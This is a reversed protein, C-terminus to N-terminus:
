FIIKNTVLEGNQLTTKVILAQHSSSFDTTLFENSDVKNNQYIQRGLLDFIVVKNITESLSNIKIQKNKVSVVVKNKQTTVTDTGLTKGNTYRLVFRDNFTGAVTSFTYNGANLETITNTLKDEIFIKQNTMSGDVQDISITFPSEITSRFGLPVEDNESFPLARGQITLNKGQNVSYFDIFEQGDFSEGDFANDIDNTAGDIYGVLTQKFAGKANTLNLWIRNKEIQATKGKTNKIKFFQSNDLIAGGSSLRMANNFAVSGGTAKSTTFFAQGAAIEGTPIIGGSVAVGGTGNYSAYDDSTYAFAGSGATGNTINSALQIATNHTWFYITGEIVTSNASLFKNADIASPYPNGLLNSNGTPGIVISKNGNHPTGTFTAQYFSPPPPPTPSGIQQGRIIYGKGVTMITSASESKWSEPTAFDNFSYFMGSTYAPSIALNQNAVPSSWYTYDSIRVSSTNRKYIINGSNIAADNIQVLSATNEFTLSGATIKLENTLTLTDNANFTVAGSTIMCSCATVNGTSSYNAAFVIKQNVTPIGQSWAGTWTNTVLSNIVVNGTASSTCTGNSASFQYTGETLGSITMSTGTIPFNTVVTGTQYITGSAPLGSLVVSGTPTSCNPQTITGVTPTAIGVTVTIPYSVTSTCSPWDTKLTLTANYVGADAGWPVNVSFTNPASGLGVYSLDSFGATNATSDFDVVCAAPSGTTASYAFSATTTNQCVSSNSNILTITLEPNVTVSFASSNVTACSGSGVVARYEWTGAVSPNESYVTTTNAITTWTVSPLLRKEWRVVNGVYGGGLTMNGTSSNLCIPTNGSYVGGGVPTPSVVITQISSYASTCSGSQVVARYEWTGAAYPIESFTTASGGAWNWGGGNLQKEWNVITGTYGSLTLTGTSSGQCIPTSGGSVTGGVSAPNVSSINILSSVSCGLEDAYNLTYNGSDLATRNLTTAGDAWSVDLVNVTVPVNAGSQYLDITKSYVLTNSADFLELLMNQGRDQCCDTRNFIRLYDINKGLQLDVTIYENINSTASHWFNNSGSNNGDIASSAPYLGSLTSTASATAGNSSRAVNTGTFIEYAEIEAVQQWSAYKQTLRIYRINSLGGSLTPSISGNNSVPCTEDVKNPTIVPLAKVTLLVSNSNTRCGTSSRVVCRVYNGTWAAPTNTLTFTATTYGAVYPNLAADINVWNTNDASYQWQYTPSSASTAVSFSGGSNECITLATPQTTITPATCSNNIRGTTAAFYTNDKNTATSSTSGWSGPVTGEGGLTITGATHTLSTGLNAIVNTAISFDNNITTAVGFTKTGSGSLTLNNYSYNGINQNGSNNYNVTGTSPTLGGGTMTGGLNLTGAGTFTVQNRNTSGNMTINGSVNITGTSVSLICDRNNNGSDSMSISSASLSGNDVNIITNRTGGTPGTMVIAGYVVLTGPSTITLTNTNTGTNNITLTLCVAGAISITPKNAVNPIVVDDAATPVANGSWNAATNWNTSSSGDWTRTAGFSVLPTISVFLVMLFLGIASSSKSSLIIKIVSNLYSSNM